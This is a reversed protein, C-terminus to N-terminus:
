DFIRTAADGAGSRADSLFGCGKVVSTYDYASPILSGACAPQRLDSDRGGARGKRDRKNGLISTKLVWEIFALTRIPLPTSLRKPVRSSFIRSISDPKPRWGWSTSLLRSISPSAGLTERASLM